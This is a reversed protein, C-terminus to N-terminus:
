VVEFSYFHKKLLYTGLIMQIVAGAILPVGFLILVIWIMSVFFIWRTFSDFEAFKVYLAGYAFVALSLGFAIAYFYHQIGVVDPLNTALITIEPLCLIAMSIVLWWVRTLMTIPLSRAVSMVVVEFIQYLHVLVLNASFAVCAAMSYLRADYDDYLYLHTAGYIVLCSAIKTTYLFGPRLRIVGHVFLWPAPKAVRRDIWRLPAATSAEKEPYVLAHHLRWSAIVTLLLLSLLIVAVAPWHGLRSGVLALFLGYAIAPGLQGASVVLCTVAKQSFPLLPLTTLFRNKEERVERNNYLIVKVTYVIWVSIPITAMWASGVFYQALALHEAGRLFGFCFTIVLLFFMANVMYFGGTLVRAAIANHISM